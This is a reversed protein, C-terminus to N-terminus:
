QVPVPWSTSPRPVRCRRTPPTAMSAATAPANKAASAGAASCGAQFGGALEFFAVVGGKLLPAPLYLLGAIVRGPGFAAVLGDVGAVPQDGAAQFVGPLFCEGLQGGSFGFEGVALGGPGFRQRGPFARRDEGEAIVEPLDPVRGGGAVFVALLEQAGQQVFDVDGDVTVVVCSV